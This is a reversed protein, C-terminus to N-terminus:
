GAGTLNDQRLWEGDTAAVPEDWVSGPRRFQADSEAQKAQSGVNCSFDANSGGFIGAGANLRAEDEEDM